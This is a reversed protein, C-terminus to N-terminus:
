RAEADRLIDQVLTNYPVTPRTLIALDSHLPHLGPLPNCEIFHADGKADLRFDFRAIDRCGLLDFARFALDRLRTLARDPLRPPIHYTVDREYNRKAELSYVFRDSPTTPAIEMMGLLRPAPANGALAITVEVSAIFQEVLVPCRYVHHLEHALKAADAPTDALCDNRIGKSSGEDAPKVIVPYPLAQLLGLDEESRLLAGAPVPVDPSVIRRATAKDLTAALTLPDSGTYPLELLECVAASIAERCRRGSGEAINFAFDFRDETLRWPLRRDAVVPTVRHGVEELAAAIAAVTAPSDYEEFVDDPAGPPLEAPRPNHLLAVNM